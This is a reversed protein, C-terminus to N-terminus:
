DDGRDWSNNQGDRNTSPSLLPAGDLDVGIGLAQLIRRELERELETVDQGDIKVHGGALMGHGGASGDTGIVTRALRGAGGQRDRTRVSLILADNYQGM